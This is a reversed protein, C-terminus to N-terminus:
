LDYYLVHEFPHPKDELSNKEKRKLRLWNKIQTERFVEGKLLYAHDKELAELASALSNPVSKIGEKRDEQLEYINQEMPGYDRDIPDIQKEIGDIGAMLVASYALYPNCTADVTRLEVRKKEKSEVYGPIRIAASRNAGGFVLDVPAEHGSILRRYSNTTPNTIGSLSKGHEILGGLFYLALQSLGGYKEGAFLNEGNKRLYHHLHMGNGPFDNLPKPMFTASKGVSAAITRVAHKIFLTEDAVEPLNTFDVEIESEGAGGLEHHHYKVSVGQSELFSTIRNRLKAISDGPRPAHYGGSKPLPHSSGEGKPGRDPQEPSSLSFAGVNDGYYFRASDFVYFEYEPSIRFEDAIGSEQLYKAARKSTGRPDHTFREKESSGSVRFIDGVLSLVQEEEAPELRATSLDPVLLLDSDEVRSYGYSSGDFGLGSELFERTFKSRPITLHRWRGEPDVVKFDVFEIDEVKLKEKLESFIEEFSQPM